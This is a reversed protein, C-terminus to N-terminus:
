VGIVLEPSAVLAFDKDNVFGSSLLGFYRHSEVLERRRVPVGAARSVAFTRRESSSTFPAEAPRAECKKMYLGWKRVAESMLVWRSVM